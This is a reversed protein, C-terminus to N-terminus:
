ECTVVEITQRLRKSQIIIDIVTSNDQKATYYSERQLFFHKILFIISFGKKTYIKKEQIYHNFSELSM